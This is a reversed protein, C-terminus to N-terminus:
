KRRLRKRLKKQQEKQLEKKIRKYSMDYNVNKLYEDRLKELTNTYDEVENMEM